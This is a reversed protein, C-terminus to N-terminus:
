DLMMGSFIFFHYYYYIYLYIYTVNRVARSTSINGIEDRYWLGNSRLPLKARLKKMANMGGHRGHNDYDVRGFEGELKAGVNEVQYREEIAVNGWHSVEFIKQGYNFVILPHNHEYHIRFPVINLSNLPSNLYYIIGNSNKEANLETYSIIYTKDSPLIIETRQDITNYVSVYNQTDQLLVYQDEKLTIKKPLMQLRGFYEEQIFLLREEENNMPENKFNIEYFDFNEDVIRTLRNIKIGTVEENGDISKLVAKLYVLSQTHNKILHFRYTFNPDVRQSKITLTTEIKIISNKLNITRRVDSNVFDKSSFETGRRNQSFVYILLNILSILLFNIKM